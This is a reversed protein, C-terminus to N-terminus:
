GKPGRLRLTSVQGTAVEEIILQSPRVDSVMFERGDESTFKQGPKAVYRQGTIADEVLAVPDHGPASKGAIWEARQGSVTDEVDVIGVEIPQSNNLKGVETRSYVKVVVLSSDPIAQGASVEVDRPNQGVLHLSAVGGSVKRVEVPLERQRYHRMVLPPSDSVNGSAAIPSVRAGGLPRPTSHRLPKSASASQATATSQSSNGTTEQGPYEIPQQDFESPPKQGANAALAPDGAPLAEEDVMDRTEVEDLYDNMAEAVEEDSELALADGTFGTEIMKAIDGHGAAVALSQATSGDETTAFRSAGIDMLLAVAETHGNEASLMLPTRGDEMRAYVSAGYNTLTDIVKAQGVLAALLLASDLDERHYPALEEVSTAKGTSTALMLAMFGGDDKIKPDAGQSLLWSVMGPQDSAVASMLPTRGQAGKEDVSFGRNLLYEAVTENGNGAAIHLASNGEPNSIKEDFGASVMKKMVTVDGANAADFWGESTMEYGAEQIEKEASESKKRCNSILLVFAFIGLIRLPNM